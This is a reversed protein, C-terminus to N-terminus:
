SGEGIPLRASVRFGGEARSGADFQGDYLEVRERMGVLGHGGSSVASSPTRSGQDDIEITVADPTYRITVVTPAGGAHRIVNTLGEQVIRYAALDVGAPVAPRQGEIHLAISVGTRAVDAVLAEVDRLGPAPPEVRLPDEASDRLVVMMRRMEHMASRTTTEITALAERAALPDDDAVMRGTGAHLAVVSMTHAVVDHLERAIRLREEAVARDALELRAQELEENKAELEATYARRTGVFKGLLWAAAIMALLGPDTPGPSLTAGLWGIVLSAVLVARSARAPLAAGATYISLLAVPSLAPAYGAAAYTLGAALGIAVAVVPWRRRLVVSGSYVALVVYAFVSTDRVEPADLDATRLVAVSVGFACVAVLGDILLERRPVHPFTCVPHARTMRGLIRESKM